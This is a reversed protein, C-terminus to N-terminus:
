MEGHYMILSFTGGAGNSRAPKSKNFQQHDYGDDGDQRRQQQRRQRRGLPLCFQRLALAVKVLNVNSAVNVRGFVAIIERNVRSMLPICVDVLKAALMIGIKHQCGVCRM